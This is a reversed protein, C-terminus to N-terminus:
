LRSRRAALLRFNGLTEPPDDQGDEARARKIAMRLKDTMAGQMSASQTIAYALREAMAFTMVDVLSADWSAIDTNRYIYRLFIPSENCLIKRGETKYDLETQYEGVSLTKLWDSPLNFSYAYDYLPATANAALRVRKVACNWPHSRLITDRVDDFANVCAVARDSTDSLSNITKAGLMVLANSCISVQNAM